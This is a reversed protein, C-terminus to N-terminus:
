PQLVIRRRLGVAIGPLDTIIGAIRRDSLYDTLRVTSNVTWVVVGIGRERATDLVGRVHRRRRPEPALLQHLVIFDAGCHEALELPMSRYRRTRPRLRAAGLLIGARVPPALVKASRIVTDHFSTLLLEEPEFRKLALGLAASEVGPQKIEIDLAVRGACLEIVEELRPPRHRARQTLESYTMATLPERRRRAAHHVVLVRDATQRVDFEVADVNATIAAEFAELTNEPAARPAGRHAIVLPQPRHALLQAREVSSPAEAQLM